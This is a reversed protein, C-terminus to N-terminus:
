KQGNTDKISAGPKAQTAVLRTGLEVKKEVTALQCGKLKKSRTPAKSTTPPKHKPALKQVKENISRNHM